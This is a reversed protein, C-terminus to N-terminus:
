FVRLSNKVGYVTNSISLISCLAVALVAYRVSPSPTIIMYVVVCGMVPHCVIRVYMSLGRDVLRLTYKGGIVALRKNAM